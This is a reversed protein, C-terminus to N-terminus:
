AGGGEGDVATGGDAGGGSADGGGFDGLVSSIKLFIRSSRLSSKAEVM